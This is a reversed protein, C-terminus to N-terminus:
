ATWNGGGLYEHEYKYIQINTHKTYIQTHRYERESGSNPSIFHIYFNVLYADSSSSSSIRQMQMMFMRYSSFKLKKEGRQKSVLPFPWVSLGSDLSTGSSEAFLAGWLLYTFSCLGNEM